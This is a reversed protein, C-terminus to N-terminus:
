GEASAEAATLAERLETNERALAAIQANAEQLAAGAQDLLYLLGKGEMVEGGM